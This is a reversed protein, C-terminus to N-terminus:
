AGRLSLERAGGPTQGARGHHTRRSAAGGLRENFKFSSPAACPAERQWRERRPGGPGAKPSLKSSWLAARKRPAPALGRFTVLTQQAM